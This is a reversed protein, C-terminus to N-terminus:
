IRGNSSDKRYKNALMVIEQAKCFAARYIKDEPKDSGELVTIVDNFESMVFCWAKISKAAISCAKKISMDRAAITNITDEFSGLEALVECIENTWM